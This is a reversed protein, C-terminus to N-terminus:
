DGKPNYHKTIKHLFLKGNQYFLSYNINDKEFIKMDTYNSEKEIHTSIEGNKEPYISIGNNEEDYLRYSYIGAKVSKFTGYGGVPISFIRNKSDYAFANSSYIIPTYNYYDGITESSEITPKTSKSLNFLALRIGGKERGIMERGITLINDNDLFRILEVKGAGALYSAGLKIPNEANNLYLNYLENENTTMVARNGYFAVNDVISSGFSLKGVQQLKSDREQFNLINKNTAVMLTSDIENVGNKNLLNNNFYGFGRYEMIPYYKFKYITERPKTDNFSTFEGYQNSFM